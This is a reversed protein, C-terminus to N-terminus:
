HSHPEGVALKCAQLHVALKLLTIEAFQTPFLDSFNGCNFRQTVTTDDKETLIVMQMMLNVMLLLLLMSMMMVMMTIKMAMMLMVIFM